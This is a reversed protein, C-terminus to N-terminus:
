NWHSISIRTFIVPLFKILKYFDKYDPSFFTVNLLIDENSMNVKKIVQGTFEDSM